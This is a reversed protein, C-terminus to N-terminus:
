ISVTKSKSKYSSRSVCKRVAVIFHLACVVIQISGPKEFFFPNPISLFHLPKLPHHRPFLLSFVQVHHQPPLGSQCVLMQQECECERLGHVQVVVLAASRKSNARVVTCQDTQTRRPTVFVSVVLRVRRVQRRTGFRMQHQLLRAAPAVLPM